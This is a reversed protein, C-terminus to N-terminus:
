NEESQSMNVQCSQPFYPILSCKAHNRWNRWFKYFPRRRPKLPAWWTSSMNAVHRGQHWRMERGWFLGAVKATALAPSPTSAKREGRLVALPLVWVSTEYFRHWNSFGYIFATASYFLYIPFSPLSVDALVSSFSGSLCLPRPSQCKGGGPLWADMWENRIDFQTNIECKMDM